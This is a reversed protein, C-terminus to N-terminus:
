LLNEWQEKTLIKNDCFHLAINDMLDLAKNYRDKLNEEIDIEKSKDKSM